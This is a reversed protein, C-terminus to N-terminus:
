YVFHGGAWGITRSWFRRADRNRDRQRRYGIIHQGGPVSLVGLDQVAQVNFVSPVTVQDWEVSGSVILWYRYPWHTIMFPRFSRYTRQILWQKHHDRLAIDCHIHKQFQSNATNRISKKVTHHLNTQQLTTM